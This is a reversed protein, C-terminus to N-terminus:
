TTRRVIQKNMIEERFGVVLMTHEMARQRIKLEKAQWTTVLVTELGYTAVPLVCNNFVQEEEATKSIYPTM